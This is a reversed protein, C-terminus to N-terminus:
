LPVNVGSFLVDEFCLGKGSLWLQTCPPLNISGNCVTWADRSLNWRPVSVKLAAWRELIESERWRLSTLWESEHVGFVQPRWAVQAHGVEHAAAIDAEIIHGHLDLPSEQAIELATCLGNLTTNSTVCQVHLSPDQLPFGNTM